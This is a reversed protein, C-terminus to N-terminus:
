RIIYRARIKDMEEADAIEEPTRDLDELRFGMVYTGPEHGPENTSVPEDDWRGQNLWTAPNPIFQGHSKQWQESQAQKAISARMKACLDANPHLRKWVKLAAAKGTKKPYVLWFEAFSM